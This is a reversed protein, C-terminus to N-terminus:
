GATAASARTTQETGRLVRHVFQVVTSGEGVAAAIRKTSGSRVDGAAFVGPINSELLYPPRRLSWNALNPSMLDPGTVVFGAADLGIQGDLWQTNPTAGLMLFLHRMTFSESEGNRTSWTVQELHDSGDLATIQARTQLSINPTREIRRTLYQSMTKALHAARVVIHVHGCYQALFVAAQGASNGGGVVVVDEGHCLKAELHTAACCVGSGIFKPLNALALMRYQAGSAILIARGRAVRGNQMEVVYPWQNCNLRTAQWAVNLMAGFKQAQSYARGALAAGSIGTPFGLYNEIRSSTGAQGGPAVNDIVCTNIGESAAYVAAALGAPGAGVVVLDHVLEDRHVANLGLCEALLGNDPSRLVRGRCVVVPLENPRIRFCNLLEVSGADYDIDYNMFPRVNRTLFESIRLTEGCRSSGILIVESHGSELIGMRRLVFARMFLESLEADYQVLHRLEELSVQLVSGPERVRLRVLSAAGRLTNMEGSFDGATLVNLLAFSSGFNGSSVPALIELSGSFVIFFGSPEAGVELLLEGAKTARFDGHSAIRSIQATTLKPFMQEGRRELLDTSLIEEHIEERRMQNTWNSAVASCAIIV